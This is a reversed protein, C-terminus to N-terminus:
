LRRKRRKCIIEPQPKKSEAQDDLSDVSEDKGAEHDPHRWGEVTIRDLLEERLVALDQPAEIDLRIQSGVVGLVTVSIEDYIRINESPNRTLCLM